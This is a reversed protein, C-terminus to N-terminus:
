NRRNPTFAMLWLSSIRALFSQFPSHVDFLSEMMSLISSMDFNNGFLIVRSSESDYCVNRLYLLEFGKGSDMGNISSYDESFLIILNLM